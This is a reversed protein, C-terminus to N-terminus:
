AKAELQDMAKRIELALRRCSAESRGFWRAKQFLSGITRKDGHTLRSSPGGHKEDVLLRGRKGHTRNLISTMFLLGRDLLIWPFNPSKLPGVTLSKRSLKFGALHPESFAFYGSGLGGLIAGVGAGAMFSAGGVSADLTGGALAGAAAGTAILETRSLGLIKWTEKGFLDDAHAEPDLETEESELSKFNFAEAIALRTKRELKRIHNCYDRLYREKDREAISPGDLPITHRYDMSDLIFDALIFSAAQLRSDHQTKLFEIAEDLRTRSEDSLFRLEEFIRMREEFRATHADFILTRRFYQHLAAQWDAVWQGDGTQNLLAISPQGTWQLIEFEAEFNPRYPHSADVVYLILAGELIPKLLECEFTFRTSGQFNEYFTQIRHRRQHAAVAESKLWELAAPAEEFGPTDIISFLPRDGVKLAFEQSIRTTRPTPAIVIEDNEVLTAVISSKGKNSRGVVAFKM